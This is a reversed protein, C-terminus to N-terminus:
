QDAVILGAEAAIMTSVAVAQESSITAGRLSLLGRASAIRSSSLDCKAARTARFETEVFDCDVFRTNSLDGGITAERFSCGTFVAGGKVKEMRITAYDLRCDVISLDSAHDFSVRLGIARCTRWETRRAVLRQLSANSLDVQRLSVNSLTLPGLKAGSLDVGRVISAAITGDAVLGTYDGGDVLVDNLDLEAELLAPTTPSVDPLQIPV